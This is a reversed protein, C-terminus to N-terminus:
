KYIRINLAPDTRIDLVLPATIDALRPSLQAIDERRRVVHSELGFGRAIEAYSPWTRLSHEPSHGYSGLKEWEAGYSGDNAILVVLPLRHEALTAMESISMMLGGDGVAAIMPIDPRAFSAGIALPLGLGIAGFGGNQSFAGPSCALHRWPATKFRGVDTVLGRGAPLRSDLEVMATRLDIRETGSADVFDDTPDFAALEEVITSTWQRSERGGVERLADAVHTAFLKVDALVPVWSPDGGAIQVPDNDVRVVTANKLLDGNATTEENLSAGLAIVCDAESIRKIALSHSEGGFIGLNAPHGAALNMAMVTNAVPAVLADALDLVEGRANASIVGRGALIVPRAASAIIGLVEDLHDPDPMIRSLAWPRAAVDVADTDKDLLSASIDVVVPRRIVEADRMALAIGAAIDDATQLSRFAAGALRAATRLDLWQKHHSQRPTTGTLVVLSSRSRVAETLATLANTVGPGHTVTAIGVRGSLRSYGDAMAVAGAEHAAAVYREEFGERLSAIYRMNVDGMVGFVFEVGLDDLMKAVVDYVKV